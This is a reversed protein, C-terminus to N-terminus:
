GVADVHGRDILESLSIVRPEVDGAVICDAITTNRITGLATVFSVNESGKYSSCNVGIVRGSSASFVPGGSAGGHIYINTRYCPWPMFHSDRKEPFYEEICGDYKNPYSNIISKSDDREVVTNPYAFTMVKEGIVVPSFSIKLIKSRLTEGTVDHTMPAAVGVSVDATNSSCFRLVPRILVKNGNFLHIISLSSIQNGQGDIAEHLVHRATVFLGSTSIYFGTGIFDIGGDSDHKIIPFVAERPDSIAQCGSSFSWSNNGCTGKLPELVQVIEDM